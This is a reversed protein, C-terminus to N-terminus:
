VNCFVELYKILYKSVNKFRRSDCGFFFFEKFNWDEILVLLGSKFGFLVVLSLNDVIVMCVKIGVGCLDLIVDM